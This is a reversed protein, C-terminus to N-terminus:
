PVVNTNSSSPEEFHPVQAVFRAINEIEDVLFSQTGALYNSPIFKKDSQKLLVIGLFTSLDKSQSLSGGIIAKLSHM